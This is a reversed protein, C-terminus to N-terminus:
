PPPQSWYNLRATMVVQVSQGDASITPVFNLVPGTSIQQGPWGHIDLTEVM